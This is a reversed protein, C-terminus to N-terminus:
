HQKLPSNPCIQNTSLGLPHNFPQGAQSPGVHQTLWISIKGMSSVLGQLTKLSTPNQKFNYKAKQIKEGDVLFKSFVHGM